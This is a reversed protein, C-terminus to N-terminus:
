RGRSGSVGQPSVVADVLEARRSTHLVMCVRAAHDCGDLHADLAFARVGGHAVSSM